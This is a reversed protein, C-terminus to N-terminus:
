QQQRALSTEFAQTLARGVYNTFFERGRSDVSSEINEKEAVWKAAFPSEEGERLLSEIEEASFHELYCSALILDWEGRLSAAARALEKEVLDRAADAGIEGAIMAYTHTRQAIRLGQPVLGSGLDFTRVMRLAVDEASEASAAGPTAVLALALWGVAAGRALRRCAGLGAERM